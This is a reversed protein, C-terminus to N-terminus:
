GVTPIFLKIVLKISIMIVIFSFYALILSFAVDVAIWCNLLGLYSSLVSGEGWFSSLDPLSDVLPDLLSNIASSLLGLFWSFCHSFLALVWSVIDQFFSIIANFINFM